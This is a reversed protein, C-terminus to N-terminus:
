RWDGMVVFSAWFWPHGLEDDSILAVQSQRLAEAVDDGEGLNEYFGKMLRMTGEDDVKWMSAVLTEVGARRFQASLGNIRMAVETGEAEPAKVPLGSECASLVVLRADSLYPALGPIERYSLRGGNDADGIVLFSQDPRDPDIVGHTALHVATKDPTYQVLEERGGLAGVVLTSGPWDSAIGRVEDEAAPLSGDPNGILLLDEGALHFGTETASRKRLSGVHTVSAVAVDEVLWKGDRRLLAFPLQQFSGTPSVVLTTAGELEGAIPEILWAGLQDCLSATWETDDIMQARLSRTLRSMTREVDAAPVDVTHVKLADRKVVLLVLRDPLLLPQLVVVGPELDKQVAELDEPDVRVLQDFDAYTARLDDVESAFAMHHQALQEQLLQHQASDPAAASLKEVIWRQEDQLAQYRALAPSDQVPAAGLSALQLKEAYLFAGASDGDVLLADILLTYTDEHDGVFRASSADDLSRRSRELQDVASRLTAVAAQRDGDPDELGIRGIAADARWAVDHLAYREALGRAEVLPELDSTLTGLNLLATARDADSLETELLARYVAADRELAAADLAAGNAEATRGIKRYGDEALRFSALARAPEGAALQLVGLDQLIRAQRLLDKRSRAQDLAADLLDEAEAMRGLERLVLALNVKADAEGTADGAERFLEVARILAGRADGHLGKRRAVLGLNTWADAQVGPDGLAEGLTRTGRFAKDAGVLDGRAMRALGLDLSANVATHVDGAAQADSFAKAFLKEAKRADALDLAVLGRAVSLAPTNGGVEDLVEGAALADGMARYTAAVGMLARDEAAADGSERAAEVALSWQVLAQAHDGREFADQGAEFPTMGLLLALWIM